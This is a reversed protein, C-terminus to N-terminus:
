TPQHEGCLDNKHKKVEQPFRTCRRGYIFKSRQILKFDWEAIAAAYEPDPYTLSAWFGRSKREPPEGPHPAEPYMKAFICNECSSTIKSM